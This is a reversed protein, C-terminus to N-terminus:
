RSLSLRFPLLEATFVGASVAPDEKMITEAQAEDDACILAIGFRADEVRGAFLVRGELQLNRLYAFHDELHAQEEETVTATFDPRPPRYMILYHTM